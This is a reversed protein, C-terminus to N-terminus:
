SHPPEAERERGQWEKKRERERREDQKGKEKNNGGGEKVPKGGKASRQITSTTKEEIIKKTKEIALM